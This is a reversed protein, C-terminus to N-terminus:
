HRSRFRMLFILVQIKLLLIRQQEVQRQYLHTRRHHVEVLRDLTEKILSRQKYEPKTAVYSTKVFHTTAHSDTPITM